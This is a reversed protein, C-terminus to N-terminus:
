RWLARYDRQGPTTPGRTGTSGQQKALRQRAKELAAAGSLGPSRDLVRGVALKEDAAKQGADGQFSVMGLADMSGYQKDILREAEQYAHDRQQRRGKQVDRQEGRNARNEQRVKIEQELAKGYLNRFLRRQVEETLEKHFDRKVIERPVKGVRFGPVRANKMFLGLVEEYDKRTEDAEAKVMLKVRCPGVKQTNVKM